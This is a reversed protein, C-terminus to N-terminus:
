ELPILQAFPGYIAHFRKEGIQDRMVIAMAALEAPVSATWAAMMEDFRSEDSSLKIASYITCQYTADQAVSMPMFRDVEHARDYMGDAAEVIPIRRSSTWFEAIQTWGRAGFGSLKQIFAFLQSQYPGYDEFMVLYQEPKSLLFLPIHEAFPRYAVEFQHTPLLDRVVVATAAVFAPWGADANTAHTAPKGPHVHFHAMGSAFTAAQQALEERGNAAAIELAVKLAEDAADHVAAYGTKVEDWGVNGLIMTGLGASFRCSEAIYLPYPKFTRLDRPAPSPAPGRKPTDRSPSPPPLERGPEGVPQIAPPSQQKVKLPPPFLGYERHALGWFRWIGSVTTSIFEDLLADQIGSVVSLHGEVMLKFSGDDAEFALCPRPWRWALCYRNCAELADHRRERKIPEEDWGRIQLTSQNEGHISFTVFLDSVEDDIQTFRVSLDGNAETTYKWRRGVAAALRDQDLKLSGGNM